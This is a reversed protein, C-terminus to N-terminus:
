FEKGLEEPGMLALAHELANLIRTIEKGNEKVAGKHAEFIKEVIEKPLGKPGWLGYYIIGYIPYGLEKLTLIDPLTDLREKHSIAITRLRGPWGELARPSAARAPGITYGDARSALIERYGISSGAGPKNVIMIPKGLEQSVM